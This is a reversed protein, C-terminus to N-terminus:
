NELFTIIIHLLFSRYTSDQTHHHMYFVGSGERDKVTHGVDYLRLYFAKLPDNFLTM